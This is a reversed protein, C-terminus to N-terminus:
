KKDAPKEKKSGRTFFDYLIPLVILTLVGSVAIGGVSAVGVANRMEAGIGAGIAMPLMGLVAALTIMVIPRFRDCAATVMAKHRPMGEAVHVNLQDMILIANNVVIGILMVGGMLAFMSLSNGTLYLAWLMGILALPLTVLIAVPQRFSELIASLTLVVLVVAILAAESMAGQAESMYEADGAFNVTYGPPLGAENKMYSTLEFAATGLPLDRTLGSLLKTVRRKDKRTIQTPTVSQQLEGLSALTVPQGPAGPFLFAGIQDTGEQEALEVVIDYNRANQKFVGADMGEVNARLNLGVTTAPIGLDNLVPRNPTVRLEPKGMRVTTDPEVFGGRELAFDQASLALRDLVELDEGSIEMEVPISQGGVASPMSVTVICDPLGTLRERITDMIEEITLDRETRESLKLLVQGLYVGESSQGINGEVSGITVLSHRLEPLGDVLEREIRQIRDTTRALSYQTPFELKVLVEGRDSEEFFGFGVKSALTLSHVFIGAVVLMILAAVTRHRENFRLMTGFVRQVVDFGRNWHREMFALPGRRKPDVPKLLLGCLMPTLTFSIFLSVVTMIVMTLAFPAMFLGVLSGMTAIPFLVVVNTGASALVAIASENAGLRAAQKPDGTKVLRSVIAELVVISNTVLIGVSM